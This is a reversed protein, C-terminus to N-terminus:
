TGNEKLLREALIYLGNEYDAEFADSQIIQPMAQAPLQRECSARIQELKDALLDNQYLVVCDPNVLAAYMCIVQTYYAVADANAFHNKAYDMNHAIPLYHLEGAFAGAGSFAEGNIALSAGIGFRGLYICVLAQPQHVANACCGAAVIHMDREATAPLKSTHNLYASLNVGRLEDYGFTAAVAGDRISGDFGMSVAGLQPYRVRVRAILTDITQLVGTKCNEEGTEVAAGNLDRVAYRLHRAELRLCLLLRFQAVRVFRQACRGGTSTGFGAEAVEGTEVMTDVLRSVTPFSLGTERSLENKSMEGNKQMSNRILETNIHKLKGADAM